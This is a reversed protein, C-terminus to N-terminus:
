LPVPFQLSKTKFKNKGANSSQSVFIALGYIFSHLTM